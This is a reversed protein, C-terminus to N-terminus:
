KIKLVYCYIYNNHILLFWSEKYPIRNLYMIPQKLTEELDILDNFDNIEILELGEINPLEEIKIIIEEYKKLLNNNKEKFIEISTRTKKYLIALTLSTIITTIIGIIGIKLFLNNSTNKTLLYIDRNNSVSKNINIKYTPQLLPIKITLTDTNSINSNISELSDIKVMITFKIYSTININYNKKYEIM